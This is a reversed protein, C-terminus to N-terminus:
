YKRKLFIRRLWHQSHYSQQKFFNITAPPLLECGNKAIMVPDLIVHAPKFKRLATAVVDMIETNYLM